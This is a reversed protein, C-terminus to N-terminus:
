LSELSHREIISVSKPKSKTLPDILEYGKGYQQVLQERLIELRDNCMAFVTASYDWNRSRIFDRDLKVTCDSCLGLEDLEFPLDCGACLINTM